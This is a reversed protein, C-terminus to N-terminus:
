LLALLKRYSRNVVTEVTSVASVRTNGCLSAVSVGSPGICEVSNLQRIEGDRGSILVKNRQM